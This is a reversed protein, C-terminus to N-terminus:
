LAYQRTIKDEPKSCLLYLSILFIWELPKMLIYTISSSLPTNIKKSLNYGYQDYITRIKLHLIPSLDQIMEEFANAILLQRNVIIQNGNRKGFRLPRVIKPHGSAAVTCLYHGRHDIIPPHVQQSFRWTTTDTFIKIISNSDQGFLILVLTIMFFVPFMLLFIWLPSRSKTALFTNLNQLIKNSYTKELSENIEFKTAKYILYLGIIVSMLPALQFVIQVEDSDYKNLTETNHESIQFLIVLNICVGILIFILSLTLTLPPLINGKVWVLLLSITFALIYFILTVADKESFPSYCEGMPDIAKFYPNAHNAMGYAFLLISFIFIIGITIEVSNASKKLLKLGAICLTVFGIFILIAIVIFVVFNLGM